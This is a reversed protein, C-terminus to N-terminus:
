RKLKMKEDHNAIVESIQAKMEKMRQDFIEGFYELMDNQYRYYGKRTAVPSVGILAKVLDYRKQDFEEQSEAEIHVKM